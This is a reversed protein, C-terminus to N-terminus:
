WGSESVLLSSVVDEDITIGLGPGEPPRIWGDPDAQVRQQVLDNRLPSDEVCDEFIVASPATCLWHLCCAISIPTKDARCPVCVCVCVGGVDLPLYSLSFSLHNQWGVDPSLFVCVPVSAPV